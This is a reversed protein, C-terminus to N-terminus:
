LYFLFVQISLNPGHVWTELSCRFNNCDLQIWKCQFHDIQVIFLFTLDLWFFFFLFFFWLYLLFRWIWSSFFFFFFVKLSYMTIVCILLTTWLSGGPDRRGADDPETQEFSWVSVSINRHEHLRWPQLVSIM